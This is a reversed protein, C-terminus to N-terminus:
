KVKNLPVKQAAKHSVNASKEFDSLQKLCVMEWKEQSLSAGLSNMAEVHVFRLHKRFVDCLREKLDGGLKSTNIDFGDPHKHGVFLSRLSLFEETLVLLTRMEDLNKLWRDEASLKTHKVEASSANARESNPEDFFNVHSAFHLYEDLCQVLVGECRMWLTDRTKIWELRITEVIQAAAAGGANRGLNDLSCNIDSADKKEDKREDSSSSDQDKALIEHWQSFMHHAYLVDALICCLRHYVPVLYHSSKEWEFRIIVLNHAMTRLKACDGWDQQIEYGLQTLEREFESDANSPGDGESPCVLPDLLAAAFARDAEYCLAEIITQPWSTEMTAPRFSASVNDVHAECEDKSPEDLHPSQAELVAFHVELAGELLHRYETSLGQTRRRCCRVAVSDALTHLRNRFSQLMESRALRLRLGDLATVRSLSDNNLLNQKLQDIRRTISTHEHPRESQFMFSAINDLLRQEAQLTDYVTTLASHLSTYLDKENWAQLLDFAGFWGQGDVFADMPRDCSGHSAQRIYAQSRTLYLQAIQLNSSFEHISRNARELAAEHPQIRRLLMKAVENQASDLQCLEQTIYQEWLAQRDQQDEFSYSSAIHLGTAGSHHDWLHEINHWPANQLVRTTDDVESQSYYSPLDLDALTLPPQEDDDDDEIKDLISFLSSTSKPCTRDKKQAKTVEKYRQRQRRAFRALPTSLDKIPLRWSMPINDDFDDLDLSIDDQFESPIKPDLLDDSRVASLSVVTRSSQQRQETSARQRIAEEAERQAEIACDVKLPPLIAFTPRLSNSNTAGNPVTHSGSIRTTAPETSAVSKPTGWKCVQIPTLPQDPKTGSKSNILGANFTPADQSDGFGLADAEKGHNGELIQEPRLTAQHDGAECFDGFSEVEVIDVWPEKAQLMSAMPVGSTSTSLPIIPKGLIEESEINTSGAKFTPADKFEGFDTNDGEKGNEELIRNPKLTAQDAGAECFDGFSEVDEVDASPVQAQLASAKEGENPVIKTSQELPSEIDREKAGHDICVADHCVVDNSHNIKIQVPIVPSPNEEDGQFSEDAAESHEPVKSHFEMESATLSSEAVSHSSCSCIADVEQAEEEDNRVSVNDAIHAKREKETTDTVTIPSALDKEQELRTALQCTEELVLNPEKTSYFTADFDETPLSILIKVAEQVIQEEQSKTEDMLASQQSSQSDDYGGMSEHNSTTSPAVVPHPTDTMHKKNDASSTTAAEQFDGFEDSDPSPLELDPIDNSTVPETSAAAAEDCAMISDEQDLEFNAEFTFEIEEQQAEQRYTDEWERLYNSLYAEMDFGAKLYTLYEQSLTEDQEWEEKGDLMWDHEHAPVYSSPAEPAVVIASSTSVTKPGVCTHLSFMAQDITSTTNRSTTTSISCSGSSMQRRDLTQRKRTSDRHNSSSNNRNSNSTGHHDQDDFDVSSPSALNNISHKLWVKVRRAKIARPNTPETWAITTTDIPEHRKGSKPTAM